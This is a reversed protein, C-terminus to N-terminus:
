VPNPRRHTTSMPSPLAPRADTGELRTTYLKMDGVASRAHRGLTPNEELEARLAEVAELAGSGIARCRTRAEQTLEAVVQHREDTM